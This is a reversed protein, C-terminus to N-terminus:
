GQVTFPLWHFSLATSLAPVVAVCFAPRRGIRGAAVQLERAAFAELRGELALARLTRTWRQQQKHALPGRRFWAQLQQLGEESGGLERLQQGISGAIRADRTAPYSRCAHRLM